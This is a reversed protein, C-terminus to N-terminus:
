ASATPVPKRARICVRYRLLETLPAGVLELTRFVPIFSRRKVDLDIEFGAARLEDTLEESTRLGIHSPNQEILVGHDKLREIVHKPNPTHISLTGGPVLVRACERFMAQLTELELHETLDAALVKDFSADEFPLDAADAVEFRLEPHLRQAEEVGVPSADAGVAVCGFTSLYHTMAGTACGLDLVREGPGPEVLEAVNRMRMKTHPTQQEYVSTMVSMFEEDYEAGHKSRVLTPLKM